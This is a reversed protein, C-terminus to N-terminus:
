KKLNKEPIIYYKEGDVIAFPQEFGPM